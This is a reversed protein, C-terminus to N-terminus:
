QNCGETRRSDILHIIKWGDTTKALTFSNSGCHSFNGNFWFEYPTWVNALNGDINIEYDLLREEWQQNAPRNAIATLLKSVSDDSVQPVGNKDTAATQLRVDKALVGQMLLTDGKHFGDFFTTIIQKAETESITTQAVTTCTIGLFLNLLLAKMYLINM